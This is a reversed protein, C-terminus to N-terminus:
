QRENYVRQEVNSLRKEISEMRSDLRSIGAHHIAPDSLHANFQSQLASTNEVKVSISALQLTVWGAWPIALTIVASAIMVFWKPIVM